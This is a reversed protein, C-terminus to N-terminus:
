KHLIGLQNVKMARVKMSQWDPLSVNVASSGNPHHNGAGSSVVCANASGLASHPLDTQLATSSDCVIAGGGNGSFTAAEVDLTAHAVGLIGPGGNNQIAANSVFAQSGQEVLIGARHSDTGTGNNAIRDTAGYIAAQSNGYLSVGAITHGTVQVGSYLTLQSGYDAAIGVPGNGQINVLYPAYSLDGGFSIESSEQVSVGGSANSSIIIPGFLAIMVSKAGGFENIGFGTPPIASSSVQNNNITTAGLNIVVSRDSNLGFNVNNSIDVTGGYAVINLFSNGGLNIGNNGNNSFTGYDGIAVNSANGINLGMGSNNISSTFDFEVDTSNNVDIGDGSSNTVTMGQILVSQSGVIKLNGTLYYTKQWDTAIAVNTLHNVAASETCTTGPIVYIYSNNGAGALASIAALASSITPYPAFPNSCDVTYFQTFQQASGHAPGALLCLCVLAGLCANWRFRPFMSSEKGTSSSEPGSSVASFHM